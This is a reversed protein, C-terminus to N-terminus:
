KTDNIEHNQKDVNIQQNQSIFANKTKINMEINPAKMQKLAFLSSLFQRHVRDMQKSLMLLFGTVNPTINKNADFCGNFRRSNDLTWIFDRAVIEALMKEVHNECQYEKIIQNSLEKALDAYDERVGAVLGIHSETEMAMLIQSMKKMFKPDDQAKKLGEEDSIRPLEKEGFEKIQRELTGNARALDLFYGKAVDLTYTKAPVLNEKKVIEKKKKM